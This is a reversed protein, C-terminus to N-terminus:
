RESLIADFVHEYKRGVLDLDHYREAFRRGGAALRGRLTADHKLRRLAAAFSLSFRPVILAERGSELLQGHMGAYRTTVVPVGLALAEMVVNSCAEKEPGTPLILVDIQSYFDQIMRQHPVQTMGRGVVLLPVEALECADVAIQYGKLDQESKMRLSAAM